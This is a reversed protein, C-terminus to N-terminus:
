GFASVGWGLSNGDPRMPLWTPKTHRTGNYVARMELVAKINQSKHKTAIRKTVFILATSIIPM